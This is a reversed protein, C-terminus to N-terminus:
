KSAGVLRITTIKKVDFINTFLCLSKGASPKKVTTQTTYLIPSDYFIEQPTSVMAAELIDKFNQQDDCNGAYQCINKHYEFM